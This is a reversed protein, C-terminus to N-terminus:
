SKKLVISGLDTQNNWSFHSVALPACSGEHGSGVELEDVDGSGPTSTGERAGRVPFTDVHRSNAVFNRVATVSSVFGGAVVPPKKLHTEVDM